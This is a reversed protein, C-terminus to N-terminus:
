FYFYFKLKKYLILTFLYIGALCKSGDFNDDVDSEDDTDNSADIANSFM